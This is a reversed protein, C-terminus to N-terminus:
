EEVPKEDAWKGNRLVYWRNCTPCQHRDGDVALKFGELVGKLVFSEICCRHV